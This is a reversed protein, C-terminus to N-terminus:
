LTAILNLSSSLKPQMYIYLLVQLHCIPYYGRYCLNIVDYKKTYNVVIRDLSCHLTVIHFNLVDIYSSQQDFNNM